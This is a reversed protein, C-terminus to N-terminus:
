KGGLLSNYKPLDNLLKVAEVIEVDNRLGIQIKGRQYHYRSVIEKEILDIIEAKYKTLDQKKAAM